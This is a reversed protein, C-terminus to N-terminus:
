NKTLDFTINFTRSFGPATLTYSGQTQYRQDNPLSVPWTGADTEIVANEGPQLTLQLGTGGAGNRAASPSPPFVRWGAPGTSSLTMTFPTNGRNALTGIRVYGGGYRLSSTATYDSTPLGGDLAGLSTTGVRGAASLSDVVNRESDVLLIPASIVTGAPLGASLTLIATCTEGPALYFPGEGQCTSQWDMDFSGNGDIWGSFPEHSHNTVYLTKTSPADGWDLARVTFAAHKPLQPSPSSDAGSRAGKSFIRYQYTDAHAASAALTSAAFTLVTALKKLM